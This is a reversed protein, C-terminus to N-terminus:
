MAALNPLKKRLYAQIVRQIQKERSQKQIYQYVIRAIKLHTLGKEKFKRLFHSKTNLMQKLEKSIQEGRQGHKKKPYTKFWKSIDNLIKKPKHKQKRWYLYYKDFMAALEEVEDKLDPDTLKLPPEERFVLHMVKDFIAELSKLDVKQLRTKKFEEPDESDETVEDELDLITPEVEQPEEETRPLDEKPVSLLADIINDIPQKIAKAIGEVEKDTKLDEPDWTTTLLHALTDFYIESNPLESICGELWELDFEPELKLKEKPEEIDFLRNKLDRLKPDIESDDEISELYEYIELLYDIFLPGDLDFPAGYIKTNFHDEGFYKPDKKFDNVYDLFWQQFNLDSLLEEIIDNFIQNNTLEREIEGEIIMFADYADLLSEGMKEIPIDLTQALDLVGKIDMIDQNDRIYPLEIKLNELLNKIFTHEEYKKLYDYIKQANKTLVTETDPQAKKELHAIKTLFYDLQRITGNM